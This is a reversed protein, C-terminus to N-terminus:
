AAHVPVRVPELPPPGTLLLQDTRCQERTQQRMVAASCQCRALVRVRVCVCAVGGAHRRALQALHERAV